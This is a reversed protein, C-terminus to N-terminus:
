STVDFGFRLFVIANASGGGGGATLWEAAAAEPATQGHANLSAQSFRVLAGASITAGPAARPAGRRVGVRPALAVLDVLRFAGFDASDGCAALVAGAPCM